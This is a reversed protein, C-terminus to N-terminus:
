RAGRSELETKLAPWTNADLKAGNILFTPTGQVDFKQGQEQANRALDTAATPNSLCQAAQDKAIGRAAFFDILGTVQGLAVGRQAEPQKMAAQIAPEGAAQFGKIIAEQNAFVQETLPFFSEPAGCRILQAATIDVPDRVFNRFEFSVRGSGVFKDRLEAASQHAFEACHGCTLSGFEVVKLPANPNGMMYGGEPTKTVVEAWAKGAPAAIPAIKEGSAGGGAGEKSDCATLALALPLAAAALAIRSLSRNM